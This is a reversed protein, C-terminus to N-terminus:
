VSPLIVTVLHVQPLSFAPHVFPFKLFSNLLWQVKWCIFPMFPPWLLVTRHPQGRSLGDFASWIPEVLISQSKLLGDKVKQGFLDLHSLVPFSVMPPALCSCSMTHASTPRPLLAPTSLPWLGSVAARRPHKDPSPNVGLFFFGSFCM